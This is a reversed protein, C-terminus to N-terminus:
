GRPAAPRAWLLLGSLLQWGLITYVCAREVLGVPAYNVAWDYYNQLMAFIVIGAIGILVGTPRYWRVT